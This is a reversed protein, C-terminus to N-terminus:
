AAALRANARVAYAFQDLEIRAYGNQLSREKRMWSM